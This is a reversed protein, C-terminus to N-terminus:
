PEVVEFAEELATGLPSGDGKLPMIRYRYSGPPLPRADEPLTYTSASTKDIWYVQSDDTAGLVMVAYRPASLDSWTFRPRSSLRQLRRAQRREASPNSQAAEGRLNRRLELLNERAVLAGARAEEAAERAEDGARLVDVRTQRLEQRLERLQLRLEFMDKGLTDRLRENLERLEYMQSRLRQRPGFTVEAGPTALYPEGEEPVVEVEGELLSLITEGDEDVQVVFETGRIGMVGGATKVKVPAKQKDFKAWFTGKTLTVTQSEVSIDREGIISIETNRDLNVQGGLLFRLTALSEPDTKLHDGVRSDMELHARYWSKSTPGKVFLNGSGELSQVRAVPEAAAIVTLVLTM